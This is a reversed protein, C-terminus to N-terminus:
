QTIPPPTANSSNNLREFIFRTLAYSALVIILGIVAARLTDKAKKVFGEDGRATMWRIGSYLVLGFFVIALAALTGSVVKEIIGYLDTKQDKYPTKNVTAELGYQAVVTVPFTLSFVTAIIVASPFLRKFM